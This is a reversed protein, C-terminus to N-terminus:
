PADFIVVGPQRYRVNNGKDQRALRDSVRRRHDHAADDSRAFGHKQLRLWDM